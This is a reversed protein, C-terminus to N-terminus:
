KILITNGERHVSLSQDLSLIRVFDDATEGNVLAIHYHTGLLEEREVIVRVGFIREIDRAINGLTENRFYYEGKRWLGSDSESYNKKLAGTEKNFSLNDGPVMECQVNQANNADGEFAIKGEDLTVSITQDETYSKLNFKTGKVKIRADNTLVEFPHDPDAQVEFYGEGTFFVQRAKRGFTSPYVLTSGGNLAITTKDALVLQTTQGPRTSLSQWTVPSEKHLLLVLALAAFPLALVAAIREAWPFFGPVRRRPENEIDAMRRFKAFSARAKSRESATTKEDIVDWLVKNYEVM